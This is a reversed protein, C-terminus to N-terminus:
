FPDWVAQRRLCEGEVWIGVCDNQLRTIVRAGYRELGLTADARTDANAIVINRAAPNTDRHNLIATVQGAWETARFGTPTEAGLDDWVLLDCRHLADWLNARRSSRTEDRRAHTDPAGLADLLEPVYWAEVWLGRDAADNAIAYAAWSKGHGSPGMILANKHGRDLWLSTRRDPNQQPLLGDYGADNFTPPRNEIYRARRYRAKTEAQRTLDDADIRAWYEARQEPTMKEWVDTAAAATLRRSTAGAATLAAAPDPRQPQRASPTRVPDSTRPTAM